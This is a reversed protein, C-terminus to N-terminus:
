VGRAYSSPLEAFAMYLFIRNTENLEGSAYRLKFGNSLFDLRGSAGGEAASDDAKIYDWGGNGLFSGRKNDFIYYTGYTGATDSTSSIASKVMVWAPKFGTYVFPGNANANGLYSGM